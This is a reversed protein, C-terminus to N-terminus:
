IYTSVCMWVLYGGCAKGLMYVYVYVCICMDAHMDIRMDICMDTHVDVRRCAYKYQCRYLCVFDRTAVGREVVGAGDSELEDLLYVNLINM